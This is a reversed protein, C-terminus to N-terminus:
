LAATSREWNMVSMCWVQPSLLAVQNVSESGCTWAWGAAQLGYYYVKYAYNLSKKIVFFIMGVVCVNYVWAVATTLHNTLRNSERQNPRRLSEKVVCIPWTDNCCVHLRTGMVSTFIVMDLVNLLPAPINLCKLRNLSSYLVKSSQVPKGNIYETTISFSKWSINQLYSEMVFIVSKLMSYFSAALNFVFEKFHWEGSRDAAGGKM